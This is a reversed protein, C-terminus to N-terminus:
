GLSMYFIIERIDFNDYLFSQKLITVFNDECFLFTIILKRM